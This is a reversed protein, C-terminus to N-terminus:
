KHFLFFSLFNLDIFLTECYFSKFIKKDMGPSAFRVSISKFLKPDNGAFHKLVANAAIGFFCLGHLIPKKFGVMDAISQDIHLPNYDGSLRYLIAQHEDV